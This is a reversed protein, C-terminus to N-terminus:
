TRVGRRRLMWISAAVLGVLGGLPGCVFIVFYGAAGEFTSIGFVPALVLGLLEAIGFGLIAGVLGALLTLFYTM